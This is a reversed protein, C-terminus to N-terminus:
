LTELNIYNYDPGIRIRASKLANIQMGIDFLENECATLLNLRVELESHQRRQRITELVNSCKGLKENLRLVGCVIHSVYM